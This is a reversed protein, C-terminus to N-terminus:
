KCQFYVQISFPESANFLCTPSIAGMAVWVEDCCTEILPPLICHPKFSLFFSDHLSPCFSLLPSPPRPHIHLNNECM